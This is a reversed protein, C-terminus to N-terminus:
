TERGEDCGRGKGGIIRRGHGIAIDNFGIEEDDIVLFVVGLDHALGELAQAVAAVDGVVEGLGFIAEFGAVVVHDDGVQHHFPFAVTQFNQIEGLADLFGRRGHYQDGGVAVDLGALVRQVAARVVVDGLRQVQIIEAGLDVAGGLFRRQLFM